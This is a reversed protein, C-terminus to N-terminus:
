QCFYWTYKKRINQGIYRGKLYGSQDEHIISPLVNQLKEALLKAVIKYDTQLLLIQRM